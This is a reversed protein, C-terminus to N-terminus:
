EMQAQEIIVQAAANDENQEQTVVTETGVGSMFFHSVDDVQVVMPEETMEQIIMSHLPVVGDTVPIVDTNIEVTNVVDELTVGEVKMDSFIPFNQVTVIKGNGDTLTEMKISPVIQGDQTQDLHQKMHDTLIHMALIEQTEFTCNCQECLFLQDEASREGEIIVNGMDSIVNAIGEMTVSQINLQEGTHASEIHKELVLPTTFTRDCFPCWSANEGSHMTLHNQYEAKEQFWKGCEECVFPNSHLHRRMHTVLSSKRKM